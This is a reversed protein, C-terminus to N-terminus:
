EVPYCKTNWDKKITTGGASTITAKKEKRDLSQLTWRVGGKSFKFVQQDPLEKLKKM